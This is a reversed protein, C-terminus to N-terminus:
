AECILEACIESVRNRSVGTHKSLELISIGVDSACVHIEDLILKRLYEQSWTDPEEKEENEEDDEIAEQENEIAEETEGIDTNQQKKEVDEDEDRKGVEWVDNEDSEYFMRIRKRSLDIAHCVAQQMRTLEDEIWENRRSPLHAQDHNVHTDHFGFLAAIRSIARMSFLTIECFFLM